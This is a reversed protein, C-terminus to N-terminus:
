EPRPTFYYHKFAQDFFVHSKASYPVGIDPTNYLGNKVPETLRSKLYEILGTKELHASCNIKAYEWFESNHLSGKHYFFCILDHIQRTIELASNNTVYPPFPIGQTTEMVIHQEYILNLKSYMYMSSASMPEFFVFSNGNKFIRGNVAENAYYSKFSYEINDLQDVSVNILNAFDEIAEQRPTITDNYLYGYSQRSQLPIEFMWGNCHARHGTYKWEGPEMINHVLCHNVPMQDLVTYGTYDKPFGRCDIVYDFTHTQGDVVVNVGTSAFTTQNIINEMSNVNGVIVKFKEPWMKELRAFAFEKLKFNNFHIASRGGLLPSDVYDCNWEKFRTAFKYTADLADMDDLMSFNLGYELTEIVAPNTSEGIGVIRINPNHISVIDWSNDLKSCFHALSLIGGSGVGIIALKKKM